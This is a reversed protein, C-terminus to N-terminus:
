PGKLTAVFRIAKRRVADINEHPERPALPELSGIATLVNEFLTAKDEVGQRKLDNM